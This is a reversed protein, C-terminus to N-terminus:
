GVFFEADIEREELGHLVEDIPLPSVDQERELRLAEVLDDRVQAIGVAGIHCEGRDGDGVGVCWARGCRPHASIPL